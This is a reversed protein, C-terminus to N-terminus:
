SEQIKYGRISNKKIKSIKMSFLTEKLTNGYGISCTMGETKNQYLDLMEQLDKVKFQGKFLIDDGEAFIIRGKRRKIYKVIEERAKKINESFKRIEKEDFNREFLRELM